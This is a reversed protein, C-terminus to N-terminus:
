VGAPTWLVAPKGPDVRREVRRAKFAVFPPAYHSRHGFSGPMSRADEHRPEMLDEIVFGSRCLGGLLAEWRHLFETAGAERHLSGATAAPLPGQRYYPETLRYGRTAPDYDMQLSAPQKHQSLYVGGGALLRAVEKYVATVDSVYCTSVPQVVADFRAEGAIPISDMAGEIIELSLGRRRAVDRDMELIAPSLDVVTVRAGAAALLPGHRGGGAALCLIRRGTVTGGLWGCPDAVALPRRFDEDTATDIYGAQRRARDNWVRRNHELISNRDPDGPKM